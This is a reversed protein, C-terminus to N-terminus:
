GYCMQPPGRERSKVSRWPANLHQMGFGVGSFVLFSLFRTSTLAWRNYIKLLCSIGPGHLYESQHWPSGVNTLAGGGGGCVAVEACAACLVSAVPTGEGEEGRAGGQSVLTTSTPMVGAGKGPTISTCPPTSLKGEPLNLPKPSTPTLNPHPTQHTSTYPMYLFAITYPKYPTLNPQLAQLTLTPM